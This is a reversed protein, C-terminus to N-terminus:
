RRIRFNAEILNFSDWEHLGSFVFWRTRGDSGVWKNPMHIGLFDGSSAAGYNGWDDYYGITSWPGWPHPAEFLGFQGISSDDYNGSSYHGVTMLYRRLKSDYVVDPLDVSRPDIFIARAQPESTSWSAARGLGRLGSWYQYVGPTSPDSQLRDKAVRKLYLHQRDNRRLYYVYVYSDIAGADDPGFNLFSGLTSPVSWPAIQWRHGLDSSWALSNFPGGGSHHAPDQSNESTWFGGTAYLVGDVSIMSLVKGGFTAVSEAYSPAGWVNKGTYGFNGDAVPIGSLRAFGLSVRGINDDDGDFGGGDGWACYQNDDGAWTCPWLDSGHAERSETVASFNWTVATILRSPPYPAPSVTRLSRCGSLAMAAGLAAFALLIARHVWWQRIRIPHNGTFYKGALMRIAGIVRLRARSEIAQAAGADIVEDIEGFDALHGIVAPQQRFLRVIQAARYAIGVHRALDRLHLEQLRTNVIGAHEPPANVDMAAGADPAGAGHDAAVKGLSPEISIGREFPQVFQPAGACARLGPRFHRLRGLLGVVDSLPRIM